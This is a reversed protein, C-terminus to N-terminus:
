FLQSASQYLRAIWKSGMVGHLELTRGAAVWLCESETERQLSTEGIGQQVMAVFATSAAAGRVMLDSVRWCVIAGVCGWRLRLAAYSRLRWSRRRKGLTSRQGAAVGIDSLLRAPQGSTKRCRTSVSFAGSCFRFCCWCRALYGFTSVSNSVTPVLM